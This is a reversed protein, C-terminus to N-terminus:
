DDFLGQSLLLLAFRAARGRLARGLGLFLFAPLGLLRLALAAGGLDGPADLRVVPEIIFGSLLLVELIQGFRVPAVDETSQLALVLLVVLEEVAVRGLVPRPHLPGGARDAVAHPPAALRSSPLFWSSM